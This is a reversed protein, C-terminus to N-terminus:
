PEGDRRKLRALGTRVQELEAFCRERAVAETPGQAAITVDVQVAMEGDPDAFVRDCLSITVTIPNTAEWASIMRSGDRIDNVTVCPQLREEPVPWKETTSVTRCSIKM